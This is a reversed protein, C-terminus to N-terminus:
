YRRFSKLIALTESEPLPPNCAEAELFAEQEIAQWSLGRAKAGGLCKIIHCNRGPSSVGRVGKFESTDGDVPTKYKDASWQKVPLPPFAEVLEGFTYRNGTYDIIRSMFFPEKKCHWFGPIRLAKTVDKMSDDTKYKTAISEQLGKFSALPVNYSENEITTFFYVHYKSPSSEVIMSPKIPFVPLVTDPDDFDAFLSRIRKMNQGTRGNGDTENITLSCCARYENRAELDLILQVPITQARFDIEGDIPYQNHETSVQYILKKSAREKVDDFMQFTKWGPFSELFLKRDKEFKAAM